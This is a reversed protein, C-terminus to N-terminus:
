NEAMLNKGIGRLGMMAMLARKKGHRLLMFLSGVRITLIQLLGPPGIVSILNGAAM